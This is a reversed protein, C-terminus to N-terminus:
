FGIELHENGGAATFRIVSTYLGDKSKSSKVDAVPNNDVMAHKVPSPSVMRATVAHGKFSSIECKLHKGNHDSEIHYLVANIRELYASKAPGYKVSYEAGAMQDLPLVMSPVTTGDVQLSQLRGAKGTITVAHMMGFEYSCTTKKWRSPVSGTLALNWEYDAFGALRYLADLYAGAAWSSAPNDIAGFEKSGVAANRCEYMAPLGNPSSLVGDLTMTERIFKLAEDPRGVSQLAMAYWGNCNFWVGGNLYTYPVGAEEDSLRLGDRIEPTHFDAPAAAMIGLRPRLLMKGASAVLERSRAADLVGYVPAILSGAYYHHDMAQGNYNVLYHLSDNWLRSAVAQEMSDAMSEYGPLNVSDKELVSCLFLYDRLARVTLISAFARPGNNDGINWWDPHVAHMLGDAKRQTLFDSLSRAVEPFWANCSATDASHRMYGAVAMIYWALAPDSAECSDIQIDGEIFRVTRPIRNNHIAHLHLFELSSHVRALDYNVAALDTVLAERSLYFNKEASYPMPIMYNGWVHINATLLGKAWLASRDISKDGTIFQSQRAAMSDVYLNNADAQARWHAQFLSGVERRSEKEVSWITQVIDLSDGPDITKRYQFAIFAPMLTDSTARGLPGPHNIWNSTGSDTPELVPALSTWDEPDDGVNQIMIFASDAEVWPYLLWLFHYDPDYLSQASDKREYTTPTHIAARLHTYATVPVPHGSRNKIVFSAVFGALDYAFEYGISYELDGDTKTFSVSHPSLDYAWGERGLWKRPADGIQIGFAMPRSEERKVRDSALDITNAVPFYFNIRSPLPRSDYFKLGAFRGAVEVQGQKRDFHIRSPGPQAFAVVTGLFLFVIACTYISRICVM